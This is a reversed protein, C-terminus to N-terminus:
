LQSPLDATIVYREDDIERGWLEPQDSLNQVSINALSDPLADVIQKSHLGAGTFWYGEILMLRGGPKLLNVWRRLVKDIEPLAWLIHRCLVVDFQQSDLQPFAADMVQFQIDHGAATAKGQARAIMDPSLDIGTVQWGLEALVLSLSGTGCGIDLVSAKNPPLADKLLKAWAARVLPDRLGHDPENDFSAAEANWVERTENLQAKYTSDTNDSM